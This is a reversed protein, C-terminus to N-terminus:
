FQYVVLFATEGVPLLYPSFTFVINGDDVLYNKSEIRENDEPLGNSNDDRYLVVQQVDTVDNMDGAADITLNRLEVDDSDNSVAFDLVVQEGGGVTFNTRNLTKNSLTIVPDPLPDGVQIAVEYSATGAIGNEITMIISDIGEFNTEPTYVYFGAGYIDWSLEGHQPSQAPVVRMLSGRSNFRRLDLLLSNNKEVTLTTSTDEPVECDLDIDYDAPKSAADNPDTLAIFEGINPVGDNDPDKCDEYDSILDYKNTYWDPVGDFDWDLVSAEAMFLRRLNLTLANNASSSPLQGAVGCTALGCTAIFPNSFFPLQTGTYSMISGNGGEIYGYSFNFTGIDRRLEESFQIDLHPFDHNAGLTHGLEHLMVSYVDSASFFAMPSGSSIGQAKGGGPIGDIVGVIDPKLSRELLSLEEFGNIRGSADGILGSFREGTPSVDGSAVVGVLNLQIRVGSDQFAQNAYTIFGDFFTNRDSEQPYLMSFEPTYFLLLDIVSNEPISGADFPDSGAIEEEVDIVGDSDTDGLPPTVVLEGYFGTAGIGGSITYHVLDDATLLISFQLPTGPHIAPLDSCSIRAGRVLKIITRSSSHMYRCSGPPEELFWNDTTSNNASFDDINIEIYMSEPVIPNATTNTVTFDISIQEKYFAVDPTSIAVELDDAYLNSLLIVSSFVFVLFRGQM